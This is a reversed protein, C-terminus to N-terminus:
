EEFYQKPIGVRKGKLDTKSWITEDLTHKGPLTTNEQVDEGNMLNYLIGADKVTRTLTGPCDFSSGMPM